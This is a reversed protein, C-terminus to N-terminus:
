EKVKMLKTKSFAVEKNNSTLVKVIIAIMKMNIKLHLFNQNKVPQSMLKKLIVIKKFYIQHISLM